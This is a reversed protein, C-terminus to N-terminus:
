EDDRYHQDHQEAGLLQGIRGPGEALGHADQLGLDRVQVAVVGRGVLLLRRRRGRGERGLRGRGRVRALLLDVLQLLLDAIQLRLPRGTLRGRDVAGRRRLRRLPGLLGASGATAEYGVIALSASETVRIRCDLSGSPRIVSMSCTRSSRFRSSLTASAMMRPMTMPSTKKWGIQLRMWRGNQEATM